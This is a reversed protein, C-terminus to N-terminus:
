VRSDRAEAFPSVSAASRDVLAAVGSVRAGLSEALALIERVSGGTTVVDEAVLVRAGPKLQQARRLALRGERREAFASRCHFARALEHALVVAGLAPGLVVDVEIGGFRKRLARALQSAVEPDAMVAQCQVYREAHLGSSLRFHGCLLAGRDRLLPEIEHE